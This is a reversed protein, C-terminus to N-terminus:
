EYKIEFGRALSKSEEWTLEIHSVAAGPPGKRYERVAKEIQEKNGELVAEVRGDYLNKVWGSLGYRTATDRAFARYFVGQVRGDILLHARGYEM